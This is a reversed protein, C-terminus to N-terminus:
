KLSRKYFILQPKAEKVEESITYYGTGSRSFTIAEGQPEQEYPLIRPKAKLLEKLTQQPNEKKWYYINTYNKLLVEQNDGSIDGAVLQTLPLRQILEANVTDTTSQPFPLKYMTIIEERKSFIYLDGSTPECLLTETDKQGDPLRFALTDIDTFTTDINGNNLEFAPEKIRYISKVPFVAANDGIDAVYLYPVDKEPGPGIAIDEWDRNIVGKLNVKARCMGVTDILFLRAKDGSDNHSWLYGPNNISAVLGSAENLQPCRLEAQNTGPEFSSDNSKDKKVGKHNCTGIFFVLPVLIFIRSYNM